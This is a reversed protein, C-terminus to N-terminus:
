HVVQSPWGRVQDRTNWTAQSGAPESYQKRYYEDAAIIVECNQEASLKEMPTCDYRTYLTVRTRMTLGTLLFAAAVATATAHPCSSALSARSALCALFPPSPPSHAARGRAATGLYALRAVRHSVDGSGGVFVAGAVVVVAAGDQLCTSPCTPATM